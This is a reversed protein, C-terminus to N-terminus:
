CYHFNERIGERVWDSNGLKKIMGAIDVDDKGIVIKSLIESQEAELLKETDLAELLTEKEADEAFVSQAREELYEQTRLEASKDQAENRLKDAFVSKSGLTGRLAAEFVSGYQQRYPWCTEHFSTELKKRDAKKGSSGDQGTLQINLQRLKRDLEEAAAKADDIKQVLDTDDEGLTFIGKLKNETRFNEEIFDRNYVYCKIERGSEWDLNCEDYANPNAIAKSITTKGTGNSGFIFNVKKMGEMRQGAADYTAENKIELGTIM